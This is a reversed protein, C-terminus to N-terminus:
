RRKGHRNLSIPMGLMPLGDFVVSVIQTSAWKSLRSPQKQSTLSWLGRMALVYGNKQGNSRINMELIFLIFSLRTASPGGPPNGGQPWNNYLLGMGALIAPRTEGVKAYNRAAGRWGGFSQSELWFTRTRSGAPWTTWIPHRRSCGVASTPSFLAGKKATCRFCMVYVEIPTCAATGDKPYVIELSVLFIEGVASDKEIPVQPQLLTWRHCNSMADGFLWLLRSRLVQRSLFVVCCIEPHCDDQWRASFAACLKKQHLFSKTLTKM